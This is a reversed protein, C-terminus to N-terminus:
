STLIDSGVLEGPRVEGWANMYEGLAGWAPAGGGIGEQGPAREGWAWGGRM